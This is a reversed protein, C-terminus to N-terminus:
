RQLEFTVARQPQGFSNHICTTIVPTDRSWDINLTGFNAPRFMAGVRYINPEDGRGIPLNLSSSTIDYLPYGCSKGDLSIEAVHRDGSLILVPPVDERALLELLRKKEKPFESWKEFRHESALVQISSVLINIKAKSNTLVSELWAWQADGLMTGDSGLPDRFYRTDLM